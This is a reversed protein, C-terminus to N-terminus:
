GKTKRGAAKQAHRRVRRVGNAACNNIGGIEKMFAALSQTAPNGRAFRLARVWKSRTKRDVKDPDSTCSIVTAFADPTKTMTMKHLRICREANWRASGEKLWGAVLAYV